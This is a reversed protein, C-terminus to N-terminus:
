RPKEEKEENKEQTLEEEIIVPLDQNAKAETFYVEKKNVRDLLHSVSTDMKRLFPKPYIGMWFMMVIIPLLYCLERKNIDKFSIRSIYQKAKTYSLEKKTPIELFRYYNKEIIGISGTIGNDIGIYIKNM